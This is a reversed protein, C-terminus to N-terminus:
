GISGFLTPTRLYMRSWLSSARGAICQSGSRTTKSVRLSRGPGRHLIARIGFYRTSATANLREEGHRADEQMRQDPNVGIEGAFQLRHARGPVLWEDLLDRTLWERLKVKLLEHLLTQSVVLVLLVSVIILFVLLQWGFAPLDKQELADYFSGQWVNLRVQGVATACIVIVIGISLLIVMRREASDVLSPLLSRFQALAGSPNDKDKTLAAPM